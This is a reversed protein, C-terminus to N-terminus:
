RAPALNGLGLPQDAQAEDRRVDLVLQVEGDVVEVPYTRARIRPDVLSRGTAIDFEWGHWACRLVRGPRVYGIPTVGPAAETTGTLRGHCLSGGRHPCRDHLAYLEGEVNFVGITRGDVEVLRREGDPLEALACVRVSRGERSETV